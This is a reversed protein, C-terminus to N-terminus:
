LTAKEIRIGGNVTSLRLKPGGAGIRGEVKRRSTRGQITIPFDTEIKGNVTSLAVDANVADSVSIVIRGNVTSFSSDQDLKGIRAIVKGNVTTASARGATELAVDGNVTSANVDGRLGKVTVGGNVTSAALNAQTPMLIVYQVRVESRNWGQKNERSNRERCGAPFSGDARRYLTCVVIGAPEQEVKIEVDSTSGRRATKEARVSVANGSSPSIQIDGNIDM